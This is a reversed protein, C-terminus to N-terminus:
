NSTGKFEGCWADSRVRPWVGEIAYEAVKQEATGILQPPLRRCDGHRYGRADTSGPAFYVCDACAVTM